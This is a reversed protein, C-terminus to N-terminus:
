LRAILDDATYESILNVGFWRKGLDKISAGFHYVEDDIILFRDHSRQFTHLQVHESPYQQNYTSFALQMDQTQHRSQVYCDITAALNPRVRMRQLIDANVYDDILVIRRTARKFLTEMLVYADFMQGDFFIGLKQKLTGDELRNLIDNIKNDTSLQKLEVAELRQFIAANNMIFRRMAHFADNIRVSMEVAIDSRLVASLQTVGQETFAYPLVTSHKLNRFRDCNTVLEKKEEETLQFRYREPFREINRKVAQNLAKTQVQYFEALDADMIVQQGRITLIRSQILDPTYVQLQNTAQINNKDNAM